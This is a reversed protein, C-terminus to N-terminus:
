TLALSSTMGFPSNLSANVDKEGSYFHLPSFPSHNARQSVYFRFSLFHYHKFKLAISAIPVQLSSLYAFLRSCM